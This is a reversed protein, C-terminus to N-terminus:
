NSAPEPRTAPCSRVQDDIDSGAPADGAADIGVVGAVRVGALVAQARRDVEVVRESAAVDGAQAHQGGARAQMVAARGVLHLEAPGRGANGVAPEVVLQALLEFGRRGRCPRRRWRTRSSGASGSARCCDTRRASRRVCSTRPRSRGTGRPSRCALRSTRIALRYPLWWSPKPPPPMLVKKASSDRAALEVDLRGRRQRDVRGGRAGVARVALEPEVRRAQLADGVATDSCADSVPCSADFFRSGDSFITSPPM